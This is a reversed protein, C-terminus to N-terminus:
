QETVMALASANLKSVRMAEACKAESMTRAPILRSPCERLQHSM